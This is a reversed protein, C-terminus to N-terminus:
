IICTAPLLAYFVFSYLQAIYLYPYRVTSYQATDESNVVTNIYYKHDHFMKPNSCTCLTVNHNSRM